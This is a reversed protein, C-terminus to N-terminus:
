NFRHEVIARGDFEIIGKMGCIWFRGDGLTVMESRPNITFSHSVLLNWSENEYRYIGGRGLMLIENGPGFALRIPTAGVEGPHQLPKPVLGDYLIVRKDGVRKLVLAMGLDNVVIRHNNGSLEELPQWRWIDELPETFRPEYSQQGYSTIALALAALACLISGLRWDFPYSM